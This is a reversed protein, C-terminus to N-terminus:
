LALIGYAIIHLVVQGSLIKRISESAEAVPFEDRLSTESPEVGTLSKSRTACLRPSSEVSAYSPPPIRPILTDNEVFTTEALKSYGQSQSFWGQVKAVLWSGVERGHDHRHQKQSHTEDLFLIGVVLSFIVVSACVLNPLLFPYSEFITGKSFITPYHKM